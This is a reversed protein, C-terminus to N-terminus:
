AEEDGEERDYGYLSEFATRPLVNPADQEIKNGTIWDREPEPDRHKYMENLALVVIILITIAASALIISNTTEIIM